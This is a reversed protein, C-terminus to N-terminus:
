DQTSPVPYRQAFILLCEAAADSKASAARVLLVAQRSAPEVHDVKLKIGRCFGECCIDFNSVVESMM